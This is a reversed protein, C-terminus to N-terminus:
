CLEQPSSSRKYWFVLDSVVAMHVSRHEYSFTTRPWSVTALMVPVAAM